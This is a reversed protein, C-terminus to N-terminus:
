AAELPDPDFLGPDVRALNCRDRINSVKQVDQLVVRALRERHCAFAVDGLMTHGKSRVDLLHAPPVKYRHFVEEVADRYREASAQAVAAIVRQNGM